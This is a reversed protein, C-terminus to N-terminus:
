VSLTSTPTSDMDTWEMFMVPVLIVHCPRTCNISAHAFLSKLRYIYRHPTHLWIHTYIYRSLRGDRLEVGSREERSM